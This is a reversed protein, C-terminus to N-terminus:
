NVSGFSSFPWIRCVAKGAINKRKAPGVEDDRSDKSVERNDGLVFYEDEGLVIPESAIGANTIAMKGYNEELIEDNIYIDSGKIQVTEGPLGIVRKVYYDDKQQNEEKNKKFGGFLNKLYNKFGDDQTKGHPYFMVIDFREPEHFRYSIKSVLLNDGNQLNDEMSSGSVITRQIVYRPIFYVCCILIVIYIAIELVNRIIVKRLSEEKEPTDEGVIEVSMEPKGGTEQMNDTERMNDTEQMNDTKQLNETKQINEIEQGEEQRM